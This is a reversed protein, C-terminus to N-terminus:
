VGFSPDAKFRSEIFADAFAPWDAPASAAPQPATEAPKDRSCATLLMSSLLALVAAPLARM